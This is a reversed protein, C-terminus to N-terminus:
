YRDRAIELSSHMGESLFGIGGGSRETIAPFALYFRSMM